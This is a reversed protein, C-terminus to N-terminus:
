KNGEIGKSLPQHPGVTKRTGDQQEVSTRAPGSCHEYLELNVGAEVRISRVADNANLKSEPFDFKCMEYGFGSLRAPALDSGQSRTFSISEGKCGNRLYISFKPATSLKEQHDVWAKHGYFPVAWVILVVFGLKLVAAPPPVPLSRLCKSAGAMIVGLRSM